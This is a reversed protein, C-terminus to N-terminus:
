RDVRSAIPANLYEPRLRYLVRPMSATAVSGEGCNDIHGDHAAPGETVLRVLQRVAVDVKGSVAPASFSRYASGV